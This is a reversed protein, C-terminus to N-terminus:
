SVQMVSNFFCTNGLNTLGQLAHYTTCLTTLESCSVHAVDYDRVPVPHASGQVKRKGVVPSDEKQKKQQSGGGRQQKTKGGGGGKKKGKAM